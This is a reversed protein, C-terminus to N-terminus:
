GPDDSARTGRVRDAPMRGRPIAPRGPPPPATDPHGIAILTRVGWPPSLGALATAAAVNAEPFVTAPCSGLSLAHACLMVSQALRGADFEADAGGAERDVAVLLALPAGRVFQAYAGLRSLADLRAPDDVVPLRWPQRNRASGTWRAAELIRDVDEAAVPRPLFRRTARLSAVADLLDRM